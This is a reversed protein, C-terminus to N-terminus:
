ATMTPKVVSADGTVDEVNDDGASKGGNGLKSVCRKQVLTNHMHASGVRAALVVAKKRAASEMRRMSKDALQDQQKNLEDLREVLRAPIEAGEISKDDEPSVTTARNNHKCMRRLEVKDSHAKAKAQIEKLKAERAMTAKSEKELLEFATAHAVSELRSRLKTPLLPSGAPKHLQEHMKLAQAAPKKKKNSSDAARQKVASLLLARREIAKRERDLTATPTHRKASLEGMRRQLKAPLKNVVVKNWLQMQKFEDAVEEVKANHDHARRAKTRVAAVHKAVVEGEHNLISQPTPRTKSLEVLRARLKAPVFAAVKDVKASRMTVAAENQKETATQKVAKAHVLAAERRAHMAKLKEVRHNMMAERTTAAKECRALIEAPAKATSRTALVAKLHTTLKAPKAINGRNMRRLEVLEAHQKAKNMKDVLRNDRRLAAASLHDLIETPSARKALYADLKAQLKAPLTPTTYEPRATRIQEVQAQKAHREMAVSAVHQAHTAHKKASAVRAALLEERHQAARAEKALLQEPTHVQSVQELRSVLRTPLEPSPANNVRQIRTIEVRDLYKRAKEAKLRLLGERTRSANSCRDLLQKTTRPSPMSELREVLHKPLAIPTAPSFPPVPPEKGSQNHQQKKPTTTCAAAAAVPSYQRSDIDNENNNPTSSSPTLPLGGVTRAKECRQQLIRARNTEARSERKRIMDATKPPSKAELTQLRKQLRKPLTPSTPIARQTHRVTNGLLTMNEDMERKLQKAKAVREDVQKAKEVKKSLFKERNKNAKALNADLEDRTPIARNHVKLALCEPLQAAAEQLKGVPPMERLAGDNLDFYFATCSSM